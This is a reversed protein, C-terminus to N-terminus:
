EATANMCGPVAYLHNQLHEVDYACTRTWALDCRSPEGGAAPVWTASTVTTSSNSPDLPACQLNYWETGILCTLNEIPTTCAGPTAEGEFCSWPDCSYPFNPNPEGPGTHTGGMTPPETQYGICVAQSSNVPMVGTTTVTATPAGTPLVAHKCLREEYTQSSGSYTFQDPEVEPPDAFVGQPLAFLVAICLASLLANKVNMRWPEYGPSVELNSEILHSHGQPHHFVGRSFVADLLAVQPRAGADVSGNRCSKGRSRSKM